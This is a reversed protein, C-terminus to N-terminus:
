YNRLRRAAPHPVRSLLVDVTLTLPRALGNRYAWERTFRPPQSEAKRPEEALQRYYLVVPHVSARTKFWNLAQSTSDVQDDHKGHDFTVIEHLYVALWPAHEPLYVQGNEIINSATSMRMVKDATSDCRTLTSMGEQKLDQILQTGM